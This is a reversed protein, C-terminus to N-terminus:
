GGLEFPSQQQTASGSAGVPLTTPASPAVVGPTDLDKSFTGYRPNVEIDADGVAEGLFTGFSGAAEELLRQRIQDAAQEFPVQERSDVKVLHYGFDTKVPSSVQGPQLLDMAEEFEPVFRGPPGCGLEGGDAANSQDKSVQAALAAFDGGADLAAKAATAEALLEADQAETQETAVQGGEGVVAFLIHRVCTEVFEDTNQDYFERITEDDVDADGLEAQLAAVEASRRLLTEEYDDDFRELVDPGGVEDAVDSRVADLDDPRVSLKRRVFEQHVLELFIQRTLVQRVFGANFTATGSGAVNAGQGQLFQLYLTNSRIADLEDDLADRSIERGNVEAAANSLLDDGCASASLVTLAVLAVLPFLRRM